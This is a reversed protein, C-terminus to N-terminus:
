LLQDQTLLTTSELTQHHLQYYILSDNSQPVALSSHILPFNIQNPHTIAYKKIKHRYAVKLYYHAPM